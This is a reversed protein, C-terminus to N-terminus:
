GSATFFSEQKVMTIMLSAYETFIVVTRRHSVPMKECIYKLLGILVFCSNYLLVNLHEISM